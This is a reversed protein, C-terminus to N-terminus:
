IMKLSNIIEDVPFGVINNYSGQYQKVIKFQKDQIGYAGAKDLPSKSAIYDLIVSEELDHFTVYSIVHETLIQDGKKISYATIVEHTKNSLKKLINYADLEDKPKGIIENNLVVITDASIIIDNKYEDPLSEAKRKSIDRVIKIPDILYSSAEEDIHPVYTLYPLGIYQEFLQKRRPSQSALIIM